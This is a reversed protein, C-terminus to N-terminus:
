ENSLLDEIDSKTFYSKGNNPESYILETFIREWMGRNSNTATHCRDCLIVVDKPSGNCCMKRDYHVHHVSSKRNIEESGCLVCRWGWYARAREKFDYDFKNCYKKDKNYRVSGYWFGGVKSETIKLKHNYSKPIGKLKNSIKQIQELTLVIPHKKRYLSM